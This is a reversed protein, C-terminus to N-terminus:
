LEAPQEASEQLRLYLEIGSAVLALHTCGFLDCSKFVLHYFQTFGHYFIRIRRVLLRHESRELLM